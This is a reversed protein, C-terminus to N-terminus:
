DNILDYLISKNKKIGDEIYEELLEVQQMSRLSAIAKLKNVLDEDLKFSTKKKGM